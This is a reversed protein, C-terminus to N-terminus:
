VTRRPHHYCSVVTCSTCKNTSATSSIRTNNHMARCTNCLTEIRDTSPNRIEEICHGTIGCGECQASVKSTVVISGPNVPNGHVLAGQVFMVQTPPISYRNGWADCYEYEKDDKGRILQFGLQNFLTNAGEKTTHWKNVAAVIANLWEMPIYEPAIGAAVLQRKVGAVMEMSPMFQDLKEEM